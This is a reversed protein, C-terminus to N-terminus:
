QGGSTSAVSSLASWCTLSAWGPMGGRQGDCVHRRSGRTADTSSCSFFDVVAWSREITGCKKTAAFYRVEREEFLPCLVCAERTVRPWLAGNERGPPVPGAEVRAARTATAHAARQQEGTSVASSSRWQGHFLLFSPNKKGREIKGERPLPDRWPRDLGVRLLCPHFM